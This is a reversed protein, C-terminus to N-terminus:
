SYYLPVEEVAAFNALANAKPATLEVNKSFLVLYASRNNRYLWEHMDNHM